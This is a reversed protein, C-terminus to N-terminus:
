KNGWKEIWLNWINVLASNECSEIAEHVEDKWNRKRAAYACCVLFLNRYGIPMKYGDISILNRLDTASLTQSTLLQLKSYVASLVEDSDPKSLALSDTNNFSDRGCDLSYHSLDHSYAHLSDSLQYYTGLEINLWGALIEQLSTFQIINYPMGLFLDNSRMVQLWELKNNRIKPMSCINCPIDAAVPEGKSNPFDIRPDWIQIVVQRTEPNNKLALYAADLQDIGFQKKIRYGYAGHYTNGNGAFKPLEPNWFNMFNADNEGNLIWFVEAIAFAPSIAPTRATIWRQKPDSIQFNAHMLEKSEGLRTMQSVGDGNILKHAVMKWVSNADPGEFANSM